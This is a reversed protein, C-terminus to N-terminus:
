RYVNILYWKLKYGIEKDYYVPEVDHSIRASIMTIYRHDLVNYMNRINTIIRNMEDSISSVDIENEIAFKYIVEKIVDNRNVNITKDYDM